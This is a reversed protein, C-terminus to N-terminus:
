LADLLAREYVGFYTQRAPGSVYLYGSSHPTPLSVQFRTGQAITGAQRLKRFVEYSAVAAKDYGAVKKYGDSIAMIEEKSIVDDINAFLQDGTRQWVERLILEDSGARAQQRSLQQLVRRPFPSRHVDFVLTRHQDDTSM